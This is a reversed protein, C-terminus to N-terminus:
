AANEEINLQLDDWDDALTMDVCPLAPIYEPLEYAEGALVGEITPILEVGMLRLMGSLEHLTDRPTYAEIGLHQAAEVSEKSDSDRRGGKIDVALRVALRFGYDIHAQSWPKHAQLEAHANRYHGPYQPEANRNYAM